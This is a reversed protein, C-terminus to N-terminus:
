LIYNGLWVEGLPTRAVEKYHILGLKLFCTSVWLSCRTKRSLTESILLLLMIADTM